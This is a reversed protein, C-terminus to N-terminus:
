KRVPKKRHCLGHSNRGGHRKQIRPIGTIFFSVTRATSSPHGGSEGPDSVGEQFLRKYFRNCHPLYPLHWGFVSRVRHVPSRRPPRKHEPEQIAACPRLSDSMRHSSPRTRPAQWQRQSARGVATLRNQATFLIYRTNWAFQRFFSPGLYELFFRNQNLFFIFQDVAANTLPASGQKGPFTLQNKQCVAIRSGQSGRSDARRQADDPREM